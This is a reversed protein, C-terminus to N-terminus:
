RRASFKLLNRDDASNMIQALERQIQPGDGIITLNMFPKSAPAAQSTTPTGAAQVGFRLFDMPAGGGGTSGSYGGAGGGASASGGGFSGAIAKLGAGAAVLAIGAAIAAPGNLSLLSASLADLAVGVVIMQAGLQEMFGGLGALVTATLSKFAEGIGKGSFASEFGASIGKGLISSLQTQMTKALKQVPTEDAEVERVTEDLAANYAKKAARAAANAQELLLRTTADQEQEENRKADKDKRKADKDGRADVKQAATVFGPLDAAASEAAAREFSGGRGNVGMISTLLKDRREIEANLAKLNKTATEAAASMTM